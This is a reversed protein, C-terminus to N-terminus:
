PLDVRVRGRQGVAMIYVDIGASASIEESWSKLFIPTGETQDTPAADGTDRYTQLYSDPRVSDCHIFGATVNQAVLKWTNKKCTVFVPNSM